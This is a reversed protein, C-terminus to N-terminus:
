KLISDNIIDNNDNKYYNLSLVKSDYNGNANEKRGM